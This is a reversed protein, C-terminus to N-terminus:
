DLFTAIEEVAARAPVRQDALPRGLHLLGIPQEGAEISLAARVAPSDLLALTRL